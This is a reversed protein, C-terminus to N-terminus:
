GGIQNHSPNLIVDPDGNYQDVFDAKGNGDTDPYDTYWGNEDEDVIHKLFDEPFDGEFDYPVFSPM